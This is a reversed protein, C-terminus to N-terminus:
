LGLLRTLLDFPWLKEWILHEIPFSLSVGLWFSPRLLYGRLAAVMRRWLGRARVNARACRCHACRGCGGCSDLDAVFAHTASQQLM